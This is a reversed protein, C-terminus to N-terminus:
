RVLRASRPTRHVQLRTPSSSLPHFSLLLHPCLHVRHCLDPLVLSALFVRTRPCQPFLLYLPYRRPSLPQLEPLHLCATRFPPFLQLRPLSPPPYRPSVLKTSHSSCVSRTTWLLPTWRYSLRRRPFRRHRNRRSQVLLLSKLAATMFFVLAVLVYAEPDEKIGGKGKGKLLRKPVTLSSLGFEDAIGLEKLGFFDDGFSDAFNGRRSLSFHQISRLPLIVCMVFEGEEEEDDM